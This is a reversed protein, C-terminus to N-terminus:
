KLGRQKKTKPKVARKLAKEFIEIKAEKIQKRKIYEEYGKTVEEMSEDRKGKAM